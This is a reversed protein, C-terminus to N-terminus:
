VTVSERWEANCGHCRIMTVTYRIAGASTLRSTVLEAANYPAAMAQCREHPSPIREGCAGDHRVVHLTPPTGHFPPLSQV